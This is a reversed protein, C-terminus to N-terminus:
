RLLRLWHTTGAYDLRLVFVGKGCRALGALSIKNIQGARVWTKKEECLEGQLNLVQMHLLKDEAEPSKHEMYVHVQQNVLRYKQDIQGQSNIFISSDAL